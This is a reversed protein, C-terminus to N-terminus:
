NELEQFGNKKREREKEVYTDEILPLWTQIVTFVEELLSKFVSEDHGEVLSLGKSKEEEENM